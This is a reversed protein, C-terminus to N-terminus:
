LEVVSSKLVVIRTPPPLTDPQLDIEASEAWVVAEAPFRGTLETVPLMKFTAGPLKYHMPIVIRPQLNEIARCLDDIDITPPGGALALLVDVGALGELQEETLPNGVDGLHGIQVGEVTFRYM